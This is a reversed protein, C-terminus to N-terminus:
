KLKELLNLCKIIDESQTSKDGGVLLIIAAEDKRVYYIRYGKGEPIRLEHLGNGLSKSDGFHGNNQIRDLRILIKAKARLDNLRSLWKKFHETSYVLM